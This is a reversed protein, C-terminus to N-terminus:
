ILLAVLADGRRFNLFENFGKVSVAQRVLKGPPQLPYGNSFCWGAQFLDRDTFHTWYGSGKYGDFEIRVRDGDVEAISAVGVLAPNKKDVAELKMGTAFKNEKLPSPEQLCVM